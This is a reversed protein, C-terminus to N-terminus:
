KKIFNGSRITGNVLKARVYYVGSALGSVNLYFEGKNPELSVREFGSVDFIRLEEIEITSNVQIERDAFNPLITLSHIAMQAFEEDMSLFNAGNNDLFLIRYGGDIGGIKLNLIVRGDSLVFANRLRIDGDGSFKNTLLTKEYFLKGGKYMRLLVTELTAQGFNITDLYQLVEEAYLTYDGKARTLFFRNRIPFKFTDPHYKLSDVVLVTDILSNYIRESTITKRYYNGNPYYEITDELIGFGNPDFYFVVSPWVTPPALLSLDKLDVLSYFSRFGVPNGTSDRKVFHAFGYASDSSSGLPAFLSYEFLRYDSPASYNQAISDYPLMLITDGTNQDIATFEERLINDIWFTSNSAVTIQAGNGYPVYISGEGQWLISDSGYAHFSFCQSLTTQDKYGAYTTTDSFLLYGKSNTWSAGRGVPCAPNVNNLNFIQVNSGRADTKLLRPYDTWQFTSYRGITAMM